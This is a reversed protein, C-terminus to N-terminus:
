RGANEGQATFSLEQEAIGKWLEDRKDPDKCKELQAYLHALYARANNM